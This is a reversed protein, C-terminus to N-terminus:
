QGAKCFQFLVGFCFLYFSAKMKQLFLFWPYSMLAAMLVAMLDVKLSIILAARLVAILYIMQAGKWSVIYYAKELLFWLYAMWAAMMVRILAVNLPFTLAVRLAAM